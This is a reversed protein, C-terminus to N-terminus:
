RCYEATSMSGLIEVRAGKPIVFESEGYRVFQGDSGQAWDFTYGLSTWPYLSPQPLGFASFYQKYFWAAYEGDGERPGGAECRGEDTRPDSCPRFITKRTPQRIRMRVFTTNGYAPPLGLRQELRLSLEEANGDHAKAFASCFKQLNPEVTVWTDDPTIMEGSDKAPKRRTWTAVTVPENNPFEVLAHSVEWPETTMMAAVSAQYTAYRARLRQAEAAEPICVADGKKLSNPYKIFPFEGSRSNTALLIAAAYERNGFYFNSLEPLTDGAAVTHSLPCPAAYCSTSILILLLFRACM